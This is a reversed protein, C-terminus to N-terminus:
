QDAITLEAQCLEPSDPQKINLGKSAGMIIAIINIKGTKSDPAPELKVKVANVGQHLPVQRTPKEYKVNMDPPHSSYTGVELKVGPDPPPTGWLLIQVVLTAAKPEQMKPITSPEVIVSTIQAWPQPVEEQSRASRSETRADGAFFPPNLLLLGIVSPILFKKKM